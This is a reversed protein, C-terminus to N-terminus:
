RQTAFDHLWEEVDTYGDGDSDGPGPVTLARTTQPVPPLGGVESTRDIIKGTKTELERLSRRDVEDRDAPRAGATAVVYAQVTAAARVTLPKVDVVRESAKVDAKTEIKVASWPDESMAPLNDSVFLRTGAQVTDAVHIAPWAAVSSPGPIVVNGVVSVAMPGSGEYDDLHIPRHGPDYVLNNVVLASTRGKMLPNREMNHAFFNNLVSVRQSFDGVLLGKSHEGKPHGANSLAEAIISNSVTIDHVEPSWTSIVEDVAWSLSCHDIVVNFIPASDNSITLADHQDRALTTQDGVRIRLHQLLVDHTRVILGGGVITIGPAPATQGAVTLFPQDINLGRELEIVGGVEFVVVRPGKELLATRLSGPGDKALTTVKLVRGGRGALTNTGFGEAGPFVPLQGTLDTTLPLPTATSGGGCALLVLTSTLLARTM